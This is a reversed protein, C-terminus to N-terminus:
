KGLIDAFVEGIRRALKLTPIRHIEAKRGDRNAFVDYLTGATSWGARNYQVDVRVAGNKFSESYSLGASYM